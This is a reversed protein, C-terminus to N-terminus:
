SEPQVMMRDDALARKLLKCATEFDYAAMAEAFDAAHEGLLASLSAPNSDWIRKAELEGVELLSLLLHVDIPMKGDTEHSGPVVSAQPSGSARLPVTFWFISGKGAVSSFGIDGAMLKVLRKCLQLGLGTGGFRRSTANDVQDFLQFIRAHQEVPIGIGHDEVEFRLMPPVSDERSVRLSVEGEESFKIANGVLHGLIQALREPDGRVNLPLVSAIESRWRLGKNSAVAGHALEVQKLLASLEFDSEEITIQGGELRSYDLIDNILRLLENASIVLKELRTRGRQTEVDGLLLSAFGTIHNLPTRLEHSVTALFATKARNAGEARDRAEALERTRELVLEELRTRYRALEETARKRDTIDLITGMVAPQGEYELSSGYVEVEFRTGDQRLATFEYRLSDIEGSLRRRLNEAVLTRSEPAVLDSVTCNKMFEVDDSYGFMRLMQPNVYLWHGGRILYVGVLSQHVLATFKREADRLSSEIKKRVSIDRIFSVVEGGNGRRYTASAEIDWTSGDKRRHRDEFQLHGVALIQAHRAKALVPSDESVLRSVHIGVLESVAYGSMQAYTENVELLHGDQSVRWFGDLSTALISRLCDDSERLSMEQVAVKEIMTNFATILQGVEDPREVPLAGWHQGPAGMVSLRQLSSELPAFQRRILWWTLTAALLTLLLAVGLLRSQMDVIPAFVEHTPIYISIIWNASKVGKDAVLVEQGRPNVLVATGEHGELFRDIVPHAGPPPLKELNRSTDTSVIVQRVDRDILLYGGSQGFPTTMVETLFSERGLEIEGVIVGLLSGNESYIPAAISVIPADFHEGVFAKGVTARGMRVAEAVVDADRIYAGVREDNWPVSAVVIGEPNYVQLGGNFMSQLVPRMEIFSQMARPGTQMSQRSSVTIQQIADLRSSVERDIEKALLTAMSLQQDSLVRAMDRQLLRSVYFSLSWSGFLFIALTIITM